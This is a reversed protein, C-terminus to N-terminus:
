VFLVLRAVGRREEIDAMSRDRWISKGSFVTRSIGIRLCMTADM